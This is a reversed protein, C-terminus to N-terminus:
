YGLPACEASFLTDSRTGRSSDRRERNRRGQSEDNCKFHMAEGIGLPVEEDTHFGDSPCECM